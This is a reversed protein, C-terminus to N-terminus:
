ICPVFILCQSIIFYEILIDIIDLNGKSKAIILDKNKTFKIKMIDMMKNFSLYKFLNIIVKNLARKELISSLNLIDKIELYDKFLQAYYWGNLMQHTQYLEFNTFGKYQSLILSFIDNYSYMIEKINEVIESEKSLKLIDKQLQLYENYVEKLAKYRSSNTSISFPSFSTFLHNILKLTLLCQGWIDNNLIPSPNEEIANGTKSKNFNPDQQPLSTSNQGTTDNDFPIETITDDNNTKKLFNPNLSSINEEIKDRLILSSNISQFFTESNPIDFAQKKKSFFLRIRILGLESKIRFHNGRTFKIKTLPEVYKSAYDKLGEKILIEKINTKFIQNMEFEREDLSKQMFIAQFTSSIPSACLESHIKKIKSESLSFIKLNEIHNLNEIKTINNSSLDLWTLNLMQVLNEIKRIKNNSLNLRKLKKMQDLNEIIEIENCSLNLWSLNVMQDLNEIQKINNKEIRNGSLDLIKLNAMNKPSEIDQIWNSNLYLEELNSLANLQNFKFVNKIKSISNKKLNLQVLNECGNFNKFMKIKNQFLKLTTLNNPFLMNKISKIEGKSLDMRKIKENLQITELRGFNNNEMKFHKLNKLKLLGCGIKCLKLKNLELKTLNSFYHDINEDSFIYRPEIKSIEPYDCKKESWRFVKIPNTSSIFLFIHKFPIKSLIANLIHLPLRDLINQRTKKIIELDM